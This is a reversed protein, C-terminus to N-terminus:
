PQIPVRATGTESGCTFCYSAHMLTPMGGLATSAAELAADSVDDTFADEDDDSM